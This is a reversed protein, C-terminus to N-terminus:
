LQQLDAAYRTARAVYGEANRRTKAREEPTLDRVKRAPVGLYLSDPLLVKGEGVLAGAGVLCGDPIVAGNLIIAGMGVLVEHGLHCGHLIARHGIVCHDGITCPFGPDTHVIVGDQLNSGRGVSIRDNDGRLVATFWVSAQAELCVQGIIDASPAIWASPHITPHHSGLTALM